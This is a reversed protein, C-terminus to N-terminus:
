YFARNDRLWQCSSALFPKEQLVKRLMKHRRLGLLGPNFGVVIPLFPTTPHEGLAEELEEAKLDLGAPAKGAKDDMSRPMMASKSTLLTPGVPKNKLYWLLWHDDAGGSGEIDDWVGWMRELHDAM